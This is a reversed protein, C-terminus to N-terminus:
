TWATTSACANVNPIHYGSGSAANANWAAISRSSRVRGAHPARAPRLARPMRRRWARRPRRVPPERSHSQLRLPLM